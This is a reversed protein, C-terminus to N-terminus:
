YYAPRRLTQPETLEKFLDRAYKTSGVIKRYEPILDDELLGEEAGFLANRISIVKGTWPFIIRRSNSKYASWVTRRAGILSREVPVAVLVAVALVNAGLKGEEYQQEIFDVVGNITAGSKFVDGILLMKGYVRELNSEVILKSRLTTERGIFVCKDDPLGLKESVYSALLRGGIHSGLIVDPNVSKAYAVLDEIAKTLPQGSLVPVPELGDPALRTELKDPLIPVEGKREVTVIRITGGMGTELRLYRWIDSFSLLLGVSLYLLEALPNLFLDILFNM